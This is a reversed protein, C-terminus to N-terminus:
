EWDIKELFRSKCYDDKFAIAIHNLKSFNMDISDDYKSFYEHYTVKEYYTRDLVHFDSNSMNYGYFIDVINQQVEEDNINIRYIDKYKSLEFIKNGLKKYPPYKFFYLYSSGHEGRFINLADIYEERTLDKKKKFKEINWDNLIRKKYKSVNKDFLDFMGHDYMYQLSILGNNINADKNILHYFYFPSNIKVLRQTKIYRYFEDCTIHCKPRKYEYIYIFWTNLYDKKFKNKVDTLLELESKYEHIGQYLNWSHEFWYFKGDKEFTLFTHSPLKEHDDIYIFYTKTKVGIDQFLKRELEVQDWCIGYKTKLLEEPTQLYYFKYFEYDWKQSDMQNINNGNEDLFGYQISDMLHMIDLIKKKM